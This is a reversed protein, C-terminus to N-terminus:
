FQFYIFRRTQEATLLLGLLVAAYAASRVLFFSNDYASKLRQSAGLAHSLFGGALALLVPIPIQFLQTSFDGFQLFVVWLDTASQARFFVWGACTLHFTVPITLWDPVQPFRRERCLARHVLLWVGHFAGWFAIIHQRGTHYRALKM